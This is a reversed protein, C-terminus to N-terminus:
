ASWPETWLQPFLCRRWLDPISCLTASGRCNKARGRGVSVLQLYTVKPSSSFSGVRRERLEHLGQLLLLFDVQTQPLVHVLDNQGNQVVIGGYQLDLLLLLEVPNLLDGGGGGPSTAMMGTTSASSTLWAPLVLPVPFLRFLGM